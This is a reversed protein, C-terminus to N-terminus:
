ITSEPLKDKQLSIGGTKEEQELESAEVSLKKLSSGDSTELPQKKATRALSTLLTDNLVVQCFFFIEM